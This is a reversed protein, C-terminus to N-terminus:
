YATTLTRHYPRDAASKRQGAEWLWFDIHCATLGPARPLLARRMLEGAWVTAARIEVEMRSGAPLPIQHDVLDALAKDYVLVGLKRLVQPLKYDAYVTLTDMDDFAGWGQGDCAQYLMGAALQARKYFAVDRGEFEAVDDWSPFSDRLLEVLRVASGNARRVVEHWRGGFERVLVPGVAHWIALREEELPIPVNGRLIHRFDEASIRALFAGDFLPYGEDLARTLSAMMGFAGDQPGGQFTITWKPQGWYCFNISNFLLIFDVLREDRWPPVVPVRWDPLRLGAPDLDACAQALRDSDIRVHHSNEVVWHVNDLIM